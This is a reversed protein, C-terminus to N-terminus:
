IKQALLPTSRAQNSLTTFNVRQRSTKKSSSRLNAAEIKARQEDSLKINELDTQGKRRAEERLDALASQELDLSMRRQEQEQYSLGVIKQEEILAATRDRIAQIDNEFRGDATQRVTKSGSKKDDSVARYLPDKISIPQTSPGAPLRGGKSVAKDQAAIRQRILDATLDGNNQQVQDFADEIRKQTARTSTVKVLGGLYSEQAKGGTVFEGIRDAGTAAGARDFFSKAADYGDTFVQIVRQVESILGDFNVANISDVMEDIANGFFEGAKASEDFKGAADVLSNGLRILRQSITSQTGALKPEMQQSGIIIGDFLARSSLEGDLMIKRLKAVSGEAESIGRAAAQLITPAGELLSSFEEARVVGGGLAQSLQMLAGSAEQTSTGGVKLSLAVADSFQKLQEQKVSLESATVSLRGYLQVLSEIPVSYKQATAFLQEYVSNLQEGELGAVRLANRIGTAADVLKKAEDIGIGVGLAGALKGVGNGATSWIQNIKKVAAQHRREVARMRNNTLGTARALERDYSRIDASLQVVLKELDIAL